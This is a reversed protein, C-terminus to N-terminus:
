LIVIKSILHYFCMEWSIHFICFWEQRLFRLTAGKIFIFVARACWKKLKWLVPFLFNIEHTRLSAHVLDLKSISWQKFLTIKTEIWWEKWFVYVSGRILATSSYARCRSIILFFCRLRVLLWKNWPSTQFYYSSIISIM